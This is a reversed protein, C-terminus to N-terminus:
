RKYRRSEKYMYFGCTKCLSSCRRVAMGVTIYKSINLPGCVFILTTVEKYIGFRLRFQRWDVSLFRYM